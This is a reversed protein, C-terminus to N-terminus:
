TYAADYYELIVELAKQIDGNELFALTENKRQSGLHKGIKETSSKLAEIPYSGYENVLREMRKKKPIDLTIRPARKMQNFLGIPLHCSGILRSEDEIWLPTETDMKSLEIGLENEFHETTPQPTNIGLRGFSSGRHNALAELDLVQFNDQKLKRLLSTKGSGTMGEILIIKRPLDFQQHIWSRFSKYGGELTATEIGSFELLWSMAESRMGGRACYLNAQHLPKTIEFAKTVFEVLKPSSLKLGLSLAEHKNKEKYTTGVLARESDSFLPLNISGPIHGKAYEGPSRVDFIVGSLAKFKELCFLPM